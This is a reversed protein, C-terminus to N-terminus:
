KLLIRQLEKVNKAFTRAGSNKLVDTDRYGWTVAICDIDAAKATEVDVESDGVMVASAKDSNLDSLVKYVIDPCPKKKIEPSSGCALDYKGDFFKKCLEKTAADFKNSIVAVKIGEKRLESLLENVGEYAKTNDNCHAKYDSVFFNLAEEYNPDSRGGAIALAVLSEVGNGVFKRVEDESREPLGFRVLAKNLSDKIDQLTYLLTGDLDFLVTNYKM